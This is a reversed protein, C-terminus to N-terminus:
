SDPDARFLMMGVDDAISPMPIYGYGYWRGYLQLEGTYGGPSTALGARRSAEDPVVQDLEPSSDFFFLRDGKTLYVWLVLGNPLESAHEVRLQGSLRQAWRWLPIGAVIAGVIEDHLRVPAVFIMSFSPEGGEELSPFEAMAHGSRGETLAAHVVPYRGGFDTGKMTDPEIDRALVHGDPSVACLFSMPSSIFEPVGHPPEQLLHMARRMQRERAVPDEVAFGRGIRTAAQEVGRVHRHIDDRVIEKVHPIDVTRLEHRAHGAGDECGTLALLGITALVISPHLRSLM